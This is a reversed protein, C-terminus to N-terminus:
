LTSPLSPLTYLFHEFNRKTNTKKEVSSPSSTFTTKILSGSLCKRSSTPVNLLMAFSKSHFQKTATRTQKSSQANLLAWWSSKVTKCLNVYILPFFVSLNLRTDVNIGSTTESWWRCSVLSSRKPSSKMMTLTTCRSLLDSSARELIWSTRETRRSPDSILWFRWSSVFTWSTRQVLIAFSPM